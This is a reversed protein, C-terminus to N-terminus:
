FALPVVVNVPLEGAIVFYTRMLFIIASESPKFNLYESYV